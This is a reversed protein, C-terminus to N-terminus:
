DSGATKVVVAHGNLDPLGNGNEDRDEVITM